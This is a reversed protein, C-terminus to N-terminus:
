NFIKFLIFSLLIGSIFGAFVQLPTHCQLYVRSSGLLLLYIPSITLTTKRYKPFFLYILTFLSTATNMHLSPFGRMKYEEINISKKIEETIFNNTLINILKGEEECKGPRIFISNKFRMTIIKFIVILTDIIFLYLLIYFWKIDKTIILTFILSILIINISNSIYDFFTEVYENNKKIIINQKDLQINQIPISVMNKNQNM